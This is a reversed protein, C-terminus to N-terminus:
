LGEFSLKILYKAAAGEVDQRIVEFEVNRAKIVAM